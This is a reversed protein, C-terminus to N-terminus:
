LNYLLERFNYDPIFNYPPYFQGHRSHLGYVIVTPHLYFDHAEEPPIAKLERINLSKIDEMSLPNGVKDLGVWQWTPDVLLWGESTKVELAAHSRDERGTLVNWKSKGKKRQYIAVHRTRFGYYNYAKELTRGTDFCYGSKFQFLDKPERNQGSPISKSTNIQKLITVQIQQIFVIEQTISSFEPPKTTSFQPLFAQIYQKDEETLTKPVNHWYIVITIFISIAM